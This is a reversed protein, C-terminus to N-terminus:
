AVDELITFLGTVQALMMVRHVPGRVNALVLRSSQRDAHEQAALLVRLGAMDIFRLNGLELVMLGPENRWAQEVADALAPSSALDLEGDVELTVKRDQERVSVKLYTQLM